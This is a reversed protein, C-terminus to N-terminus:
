AQEKGLWNLRARDVGHEFSLGAELQTIWRTVRTIVRRLKNVEVKSGPQREQKLGSSVPLNADHCKQKAERSNIGAGHRGGLEQGSGSGVMRQWSGCMSVPSTGALVSGGRETVPISVHFKVALNQGYRVCSDAKEPAAGRDQLDSLSLFFPGNQLNVPYSINALNAAKLM